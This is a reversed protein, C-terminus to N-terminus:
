LRSKGKDWSRPKRRRTSKEDTPRVLREPVREILIDKNNLAARFSDRLEPLLRVGEMLRNMNTVFYAHRIDDALNVITTYAEEDFVENLIEDPTAICCEAILLVLLKASAANQRNRKFDEQSISLGVDDDYEVIADLADQYRLFFPRHAM